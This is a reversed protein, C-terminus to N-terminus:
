GVSALLSLVDLFKAYNGWWSVVISTPSLGDLCGALRVDLPVEGVDWAFDIRQRYSQVTLYPPIEIGIDGPILSNCAM